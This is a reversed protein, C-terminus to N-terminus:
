AKELFDCGTSNKKLSVPSWLVTPETADLSLTPHTASSPAMRAPSQGTVESMKSCIKPSLKERFMIDYGHVFFLPPPTQEVWFEGEGKADRGLNLM